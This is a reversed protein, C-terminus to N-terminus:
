WWGCAQTWAGAAAGATTFAMALVLRRVPRPPVGRPPSPHTAAVRAAVARVLILLSARTTVGWGRGAVREDTSEIKM